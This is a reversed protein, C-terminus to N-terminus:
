SDPTNDHFHEIAHCNACLLICKDIEAQIKEISFSHCTMKWVDYTKELPNLHHFHLVRYDDMPCRSCCGEKKIGLVFLHNRRRMRKCSEAYKEKNAQYHASAYAKPDKAPM